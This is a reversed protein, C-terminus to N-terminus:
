CNNTGPCRISPFLALVLTGLGKRLQLCMQLMQQYQHRARQRPAGTTHTLHGGRRGEKSETTRKAALLRRSNPRRHQARLFTVSLLQAALKSYHDLGGYIPM